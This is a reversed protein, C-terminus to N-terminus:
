SNYKQVVEILIRYGKGKDRDFAELMNLAASSILQWDYGYVPHRNVKVLNGYDMYQVYVNSKAFSTLGKAFTTKNDWNPDYEIMDGDKAIYGNGVTIHVCGSESQHIHM